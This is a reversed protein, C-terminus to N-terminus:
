KWLMTGGWYIGYVMLGLALLICIAGLIEEFHEELFACVLMTLMVLGLIGFFTSM